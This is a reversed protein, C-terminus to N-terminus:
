VYEVHVQRVPWDQPESRHGAQRLMAHFTYMGSNFGTQRQTKVLELADEVRATM